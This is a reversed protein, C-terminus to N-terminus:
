RSVTVVLGARAAGVLDRLTVSFRAGRMPAAPTGTVVGTRRDLALGRPLPRALSFRAPGTRRVVVPRHPRIARGARAVLRRYALQPRGYGYVVYASGTTMRGAFGVSPAGVVIDPRGDGNVDGARALSTAAADRPASGDMRFGGNTSASLDVIAPRGGRGVLYASGADTRGGPDAGIAGVLVDGARDSTLDGPLAVTAGALDLPAAGDIRGRQEGVAALDVNRGAEPDFFVYATGAGQRGAPDAFMAGVVLEPRGDADLNGAAVASGAGDGPAAGDIRFGLAGEGSSALDVTETTRKGFVVHVTGSNVRGNRDAFTSGVLVDALGDGSVDGAPAIAEATFDQAAAGDIRFGQAGLAALDVTETTPKGFVVYASGSGRRLNHDAFPAGVLVDPRGDGNVDGAAAVSLGAREGGTAGDIRFGRSGLAALDVTATDNAGFVVYASGSNPRGNADAGSAGVLVDGRGDGNVDGVGAVATGAREGAAAGDIRFGGQRLSALEIAGPAERGFVVYVSGSGARANADAGPAGVLVDARGDRSVDGASAVANGTEDGAAAGRLEINAQSALAVAGLQQPLVQTRADAGSTASGLLVALGVAALVRM